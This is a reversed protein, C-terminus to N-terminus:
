YEDKVGKNTTILIVGLILKILLSSWNINPETEIDGAISYIILAGTFKLLFNM